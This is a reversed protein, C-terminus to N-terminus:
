AIKFFILFYVALCNKFCKKALVKLFDYYLHGKQNKITLFVYKKNKMKM